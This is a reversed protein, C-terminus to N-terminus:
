GWHCVEGPLAVGGLGEWNQWSPVLYKFVHATGTSTVM